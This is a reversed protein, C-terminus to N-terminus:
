HDPASICKCSALGCCVDVFFPQCLFKALCFRSMAILTMPDHGVDQPVVYPLFMPHLVRGGNRCIARKDLVQTRWFPSVTTHHMHM